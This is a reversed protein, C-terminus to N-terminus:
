DGKVLVLTLNNAPMEVVRQLSLGHARAEREIDEVHRVGWSPDRARLSQDFAANSPAMAGDRGFPGYLVLRGGAKLVRGAGALLALTCEWATIHLVNAAFVADVKGVPWRPERVDLAHAPRLNPSRVQARWAEISALARPDIDTPMWEIGRLAPAFYAGHVGTGAGVELVKGRSPLVDQLVELIPQWNRSAAASNLRADSM